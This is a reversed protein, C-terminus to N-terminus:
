EVFISNMIHALRYSAFSLQEHLIDDIQQRQENSLEEFIAGQGWYYNTEIMRKANQLGWQTPGGKCIKKIQKPTYTDYEEVFRDAKWKPHMLKPANDWFSHRWTKKGKVYIPATRIGSDASYAVHCPCHMDGTTHIILKLTLAVISDPLNRYNGNSLTNIHKNLRTVADFTIDGNRGVIKLNKDVYSMHGTAVDKFPDINRWSDQWLAYHPLNHKLYHQCKAKAEPTLHKEAMYAVVNHGVGTWALAEQTSAVAVLMLALILIRFKM